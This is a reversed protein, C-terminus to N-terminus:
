GARRGRGTMKSLHEVNIRAENDWATWGNPAAPQMTRCHSSTAIWGARAQVFHFLSNHGRM